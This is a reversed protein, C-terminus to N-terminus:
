LHWRMRCSPWDDRTAASDHAGNRVSAFLPLYGTDMCSKSIGHQQKKSISTLYRVVPAAKRLKHTSYHVPDHQLHSQRCAVSWIRLLSRVTNLNLVTVSLSFCGGIWYKSMAYFSPPLYFTLSLLLLFLTFHKCDPSTDLSALRSM